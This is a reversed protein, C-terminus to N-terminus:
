VIVFISVRLIYILDSYDFESSSTVIKINVFVPQLIVVDYTAYIIAESLMM